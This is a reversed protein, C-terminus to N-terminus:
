YRMWPVFRPMLDPDSQLNGQRPEPAPFPSMMKRLDGRELDEWSGGEEENLVRASDGTERLEEAPRRLKLRDIWERDEAVLDLCVYPPNLNQWDEDYRARTSAAEDWTELRVTAKSGEKSAILVTTMPTSITRITNSIYDLAGGHRLLLEVSELSKFYIAAFLATPGTAYLGTGLHMDVGYEELLLRFNEPKDQCAAAYLPKMGPPIRHKNPNAGYKEILLRVCEVSGAQAAKELLHQLNFNQDTPRKDLSMADHETVGLSHIFDFKAASDM